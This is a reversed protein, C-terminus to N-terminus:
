ISEVKPMNSNVYQQIIELSLKNKSVKKEKAIEKLNEDINEPM